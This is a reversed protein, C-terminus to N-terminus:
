LTSVDPPLQWEYDKNNLHREYWELEVNIKFLRHRLEGFSHPERPAIYLKAEKGLDRLARYQLYTWIVALRSINNVGHGIWVCDNQDHINM